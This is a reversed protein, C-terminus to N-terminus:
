NGPRGGLRDATELLDTRGFREWARLVFPTNGDLLLWDHFARLDFADGDRTAATALLQRIQAKGAEYSLAQGPNGAFFLAEARATAPDLCADRELSATADEIGIEGLALGIDVTVRVARLRMARLLFTVSHPADHFMGSRLLLEENYYAIGENPASDAFHRRVPRAWRGSVASQYAHVGEHALGVRPDLAEAAAFFPLTESPPELYRIADADHRDPPLHHPVALWALPALRDPMPANRYRRLRGIPSLLGRELYFRRFRREAARQAVVQAAIDAPLQPLPARGAGARHIALEARARDAADAGLWRLEGTTYPLLAVRHLLFGFAEPGPAARPGHRDAGNALWTAFGTLARVAPEAGPLARLGTAARHILPIAHAAFPEAVNGALNERAQSLVVPVHALLAAIGPTVPEPELLANHVPVLAQDLYFCPNDQWSRLLELEWTVRALAAEVLRSDVRVEVPEDDVAVARLRDAFGAARRRRDALADASWDPLWHPPRAARTLDDCSDPQTSSRWAHFESAIAELEAAATM